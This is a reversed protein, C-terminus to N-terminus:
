IAWILGKSAADQEALTQIADERSQNTVKVLAAIRNEFKATEQAQKRETAWATLTKLIDAESADPPLELIEALRVALPQETRDNM